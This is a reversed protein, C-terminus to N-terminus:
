FPLRDVMFGAAKRHGGGGYKMAIACLDLDDRRTRLEVRYQKGNFNFPMFVDFEGNISDFLQSKLIHTNCALCDLGEFEVSFSWNQLIDVYSRKQVEIVNSGTKVIADFVFRSDQLLQEWDSNQPDSYHLMVGANFAENETNFKGLDYDAITAVARPLSDKYFYNWTLECAAKGSLLIGDVAGLNLDIDSNNKVQDIASQHHDIWIVDETKLLLRKFVDPNFSFDLLYVSEGADILDVNFDFGKDCHYDLAMADDRSFCFGERNNFYFWYVIAAACIGDADNHYLIKM